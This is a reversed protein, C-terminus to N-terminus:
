ASGRGIMGLVDAGSLWLLVVPLRSSSSLLALLSARVTVFATMCLLSVRFRAIALCRFFDLSISFATNPICRVSTLPSRLIKSRISRSPLPWRSANPLFSAQARVRTSGGQGDIYGVQRTKM